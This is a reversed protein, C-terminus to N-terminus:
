SKTQVTCGKGTGGAKYRHTDQAASEVGARNKTGMNRSLRSGEQHRLVSLFNMQKEKIKLKQRTRGELSPVSFLSHPIVHMTEITWKGEDDDDDGGGCNQTEERKRGLQRWRRGPWLAACCFGWVSVSGFTHGGKPEGGDTTLTTFRTNM